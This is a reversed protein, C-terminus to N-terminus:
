SIIKLFFHFNNQYHLLNIQNLFLNYSDILYFIDELLKLFRAIKHINWFLMTTYIPCNLSLQYQLM